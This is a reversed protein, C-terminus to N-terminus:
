KAAAPEPSTFATDPVTPPAELVPFYIRTGDKPNVRDGALLIKGYRVWGKWLYPTAPGPGGKLIYEWKDVLGTERNVYVWYKDKPTLGVGDFTLAVKDWADNGKKEEGDMALIVGPDRMKYPMLLWYTDNVWTAYAQELYKKEEEGALRKGKLWASGEKTNINMLVTYPDGEKTKAELRYRGTWKDWTHSRSVVTKGEREVAFDFRLYRTDNWAEPGGLAHMVRDAIAVAPSPSSGAPPKGEAAPAQAAGALVVAVLILRVCSV